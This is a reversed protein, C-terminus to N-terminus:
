VCPCSSALSWAIGVCLPCKKGLSVLSGRHNPKPGPRWGVRRGVEGLQAQIRVHDWIKQRQPHLGFQETLKWPQTKTDGAPRELSARRAGEPMGWSGLKQSAIKGISLHHGLIKACATGEAHIGEEVTDSQIM